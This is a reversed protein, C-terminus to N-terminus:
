ADCPCDSGDGPRRGAPAKRRLLWHVPRALPAWRNMSGFSIVLGLPLAGILTVLFLQVTKVFGENLASVVTQFEASMFFM